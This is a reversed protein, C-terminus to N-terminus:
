NEAQANKVNKRWYALLDGLTKEFPILPRWGTREAFKRPDGILKPIDGPRMRQAEQKVRIRRDTLSLYVSLIDRVSRGVGTCINYVDGPVGKELALWYARVVDRVDAFDRVARINGVHIVPKQRDAEILAVQRALSSAVFDQRQGPGTHNFARTRVVKLHFSLFYQRGILDQAIKSVAYSSQPRLVARESVPSAGSLGYEQASGAIHVRCKGLRATRIAELLNLTGFVNTELAGLPAKLSGTVSSEAALHFVRDPRIKRILRQVARANRLDCDFFRVAHSAVPRAFSAVLRRRIGYLQIGDRRALFDALHSGAFGTIGTILVRM